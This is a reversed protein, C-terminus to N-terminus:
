MIAPSSWESLKRMGEEVWSYNNSSHVIMDLDSHVLYTTNCLHPMLFHAYEDGDLSESRSSEDM